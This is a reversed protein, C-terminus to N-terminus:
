QYFANFVAFLIIFFLFSVCFRRTQPAVFCASTKRPDSLYIEHHRRYSDIDIQYGQRHAYDAMSKITAPEDDYSGIHMCHVCLGEDYPFFEVKKTPIVRVM